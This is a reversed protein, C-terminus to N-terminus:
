NNKPALKKKLEANEESLKEVKKNIEIIYLTLEEIKKLMIAQTDGLDLGNDEVEKASPVDPLHKNKQIYKELDILPMLKYPPHFVYDPWTNYQKVKVKTFIADGNVALRYGQTNTTGIGVNGSTNNYIDSGAQTWFNTGGGGLTSADRWELVKDTSNWTVLKTETNDVSISGVKLTGAAETQGYTGAGNAQHVIFTPVDSNAGMAIARTENLVMQTTGGFGILISENATNKLGTGLTGNRNGTARNQSGIMWSSAYQNGTGAGPSLGGLVNDNGAVFGYSVFNDNGFNLAAGSEGWVENADNAVFGYMASGYIHGDAGLAVSGVAGSAIITNQGGIAASNHANVTANTSLSVANVGTGTSGYFTSLNGSGLISNGFITKINTGSVLTTQKGNLATQLDTQASLTGAISGWTAGGGGGGSAAAWEPLGNNVTLVHGNTTGIPLRTFQGVANRYFIDGTNDGGLDFRSTGNVHFFAGPTKTGFMVSDRSYVRGSDAYIAYTLAKLWGQAGVSNATVRL